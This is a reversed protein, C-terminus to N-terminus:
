RVEHLLAQRVTGEIVIDAERDHLEGFTADHGLRLWFAEYSALDDFDMFLHSCHTPGAVEIFAQVPVGYASRLYGSVDVLYQRAERGKGSRVEFSRQM